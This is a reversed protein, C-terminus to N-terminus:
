GKCRCGSTYTEGLAPIYSIADECVRHEYPRGNYVVIETEKVCHHHSRVGYSM